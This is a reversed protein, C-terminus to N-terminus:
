LDNEPTHYCISCQNATPLFNEVKEHLLVTCACYYITKKLFDTNLHKATPGPSILLPFLQQCGLGLIHFICIYVFQPCTTNCSLFMEATYIGKILLVRFQLTHNTYCNHLAYSAYWNCTKLCHIKTYITAM